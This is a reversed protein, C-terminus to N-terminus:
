IVKSAGFHAKAPHEGNEHLTHDKAIAAPLASALAHIARGIAAAHGGLEASEIVNIKKPFSGQMQIVIQGM